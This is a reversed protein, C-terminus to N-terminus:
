TSGSPGGNAQGPSDRGPTDEPRNVVTAGFVQGTEDRLGDPFDSAAQRALHRALERALDLTPARVQMQASLRGVAPDLYCRDVQALSRLSREFIPAADEFDRPGLRLAVEVAWWEKAAETWREAERAIRDAMAPLAPFGDRAAGISWRRHFINIFSHHCHHQCWGIAESLEVCAAGYRIWNSGMTPDHWHCHFRDFWRDVGDVPDDKDVRLQSIWGTRWDPAVV